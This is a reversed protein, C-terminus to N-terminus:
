PCFKNDAKWALHYQLGANANLDMSDISTLLSETTQNQSQISINISMLPLGESGLESGCTSWLPKDAFNSQLFLDDNFPGDLVRVLDMKKWFQHGHAFPSTHQIDITSRAGAPVGAFARIDSGVIAVRYKGSFKVSLRIQCDRRSRVADGPNIETNFQDFLVSVVSSDPSLAVSASGQPCGTGSMGDVAVQVDPPVAGVPPTYSKPKGWLLMPSLLIALVIKSKSM